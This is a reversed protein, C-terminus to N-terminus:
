ALGVLAQYLPEYLFQVLTRDIESPVDPGPSTAEGFYPSLVQQMSLLLSTAPTDTATLGAERPSFAADVFVVRASVGGRILRGIVQWMVVLQDWTASLKEEPPLSSWSLRRTLYRQWQGRALSRFELGAADPTGVARVQQAFGGDRLYRVAWDNVAQIALTIDDPRPHPRALFYVTGIAAKGDPLVINHGREVALLPAVLVESTTAGYSAVDGRRLRHASPDGPLATWADDLDADDSILATVRGNWEPISNLYDAADRAEAYSGVLLLVRRRDPDSIDALEDALKSTAMALSRDPEALQRLMQRLVQPRNRVGAGSLRLAFGESDYLFEKRFTTGLIARVEKENPRLVAGVPVHVHYRTSTGAWSTASMLLVNPGPRGDVAPLDHLGLLLERGIGSCRFFRLAGSRGSDDLQFQFGLVNGMPSEPIFPEYDKPPRRSLVNSTEDMNLAAEIRPWMGTMFDLRYHLTALILTFEFRLAHADIEAEIRQRADDPLLGLMIRRLRDRTTAGNQAHLLELALSVLDRANTGPEEAAGEAPQLPDDRFSDFIRSVRDREFTIAAVQPDSSRQEGPRESVVGKDPKLEPFWANLLWQHLTFPSFYDAIVWDRLQRNQILLAYLRDTAASVTNTANIWDDIEQESLQLRGERALETIKRSQVEDLWSDPARGVLTTSPAFAADLQMQVRDAEDVIVLDSTRCALELYRIRADTQHPPVASHVLSAPTAVWVQAPVLDRAGHYRPCRSWLPCGHRSPRAPGAKAPFLAICPAQGIRLPADAELGRLADVACASGLYRFGPHEHALMAAAGATALRRHLRQIHRERTSQGLIPAATVGLRAFTGVVALTEAVDGVVITVRLGKRACWYALIDRLTSKGAGVMGVLHLMGAITLPTGDAFGREGLVFLKVRSLRNAWDSRWDDASGATAEIEDMEAAAAELDNWSVTIPEGQGAPAAELDHTVPQASAMLAAPFTVSYSRDRVPFRYEGATALPLSRRVFEPPTTLLEAFKEFRTAARAPSRRVPADDDGKLDYGRLEPPVRLYSELLMLWVRRRRMPWLYHRARRILLRQEATRVHGLAEAYPYGGFLTWADGAVGDPMALGLLHLGLEVSLMAAPPFGQLDSPWVSRLEKILREHWGNASRV